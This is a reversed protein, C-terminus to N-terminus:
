GKCATQNFQRFLLITKVKFHRVTGSIAKPNSQAFTVSRCPQWSDHWHAHCHRHGMAKNNLRVSGLIFTFRYVSTWKLDQLDLQCLDFVALWVVDVGNSNRGHTDGTFRGRLAPSSFFSFWIKGPGCQFSWFITYILSCPYQMPSRHWVDFDTNIQWVMSKWIFARRKLFLEFIQEFM